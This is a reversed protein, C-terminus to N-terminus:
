TVWLSFFLSVLKLLVCFGKVIYGKICCPYSDVKELLGNQQMHYLYSRTLDCLKHYKGASQSVFAVTDVKVLVSQCHGQQFTMVAM